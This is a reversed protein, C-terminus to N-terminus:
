ELPADQTDAFITYGYGINGQARFNSPRGPWTETPSMLDEAAGDKEFFSRM